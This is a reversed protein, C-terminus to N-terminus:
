RRKRNYDDRIEEVRKLFEGKLLEGIFEGRYYDVRAAIALKAALARAIKGRLKKPANRVEAVKFITGHKPCKAGTKLHRFFADEAGLVQITSAPLKALRELRGADAILNAAIIPGVLATLNPAVKKARKEIERYLYDRMEEMEELKKDLSNAVPDEKGKIEEIRKWEIKREKLLNIISVVDNYTELTEILIYDDQLNEGMEERALSIAVERMEEMNKLEGEIVIKDDDLFNGLPSFDGKRIKKLIEVIEERPFVKQEIIKGDRIKFAGYWKIM